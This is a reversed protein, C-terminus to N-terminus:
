LLSGKEHIVDCGKEKLFQTVKDAYKSLSSDVYKIVTHYKPSKEKYGVYQMKVCADKLEIKQTVINEKKIFETWKEKAKILSDEIQKYTTFDKTNAMKQGPKRPSKRPTDERKRPTDERKQKKAKTDSPSKKDKPEYKRKNNGVVDEDVLQIDIQSTERKNVIDQVIKVVEDIEIGEFCWSKFDPNWFAGNNKLEEKLPFTKGNVRITKGQSVIFCDGVQM